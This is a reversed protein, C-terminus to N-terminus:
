AQAFVDGCPVGFVVDIGLEAGLAADQRVRPAAQLRHPAAGLRQPDGPAVPGRLLRQLPAELLADGREGVVAAGRQEEAADVVVIADALALAGDLVGAQGPRPEVEAAPVHYVVLAVRHHDVPAGGEGMGEVPCARAAAIAHPPAAAVAPALPDEGAELVLAEVMGLVLLDARPRQALLDLPGADARHAVDDGGDLGLLVVQDAGREAVGDADLAAGAGALGGHRQVPDREQEVLVALPQLAVPHQHDARAAGVEGEDAVHQGAEALDADGLHGQLLEHGPDLRAAGVRRRGGRQLAVGAHGLHHAAGDEAVQAPRGLRQAQAM